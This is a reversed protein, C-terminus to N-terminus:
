DQPVFVIEERDIKVKQNREGRGKNSKPPHNKREDESSYDTSKPPKQNKNEFKPKGQEGNLRNIEHRLEQVQIKLIANESQQSAIINIIPTVCISFYISLDKYIFLLIYQTTFFVWIESM